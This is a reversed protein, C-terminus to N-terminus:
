SSGEIQVCIDVIQKIVKSCSSKGSEVVGLAIPLLIRTERNCFIADLAKIIYRLCKVDHTSEPEIKKFMKCLLVVLSLGNTESGSM